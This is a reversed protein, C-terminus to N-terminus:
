KVDGIQSTTQVAPIYWLQMKVIDKVSDIIVQSAKRKKEDDIDRYDFEVSAYIGRYDDHPEVLLTKKDVFVNPMHSNIIDLAKIFAPEAIEEDVNIVYTVLRKM